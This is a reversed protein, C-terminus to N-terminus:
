RDSFRFRSPMAKPKTISATVTRARRHAARATQEPDTDFKDALHDALLRVIDRAKERDSSQSDYIFGEKLIDHRRDYAVLWRAADLGDPEGAGLHWDFMVMFPEGRAEVAAIFERINKAHIVEKGFVDASKPPDREADLFLVWDPAREPLDSM